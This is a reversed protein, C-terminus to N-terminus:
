HQCDCNCSPQENDECPSDEDDAAAYASVADRISSLIDKIGAVASVVDTVGSSVDLDPLSDISSLAHAIKDLMQANGASMKMIDDTSASLPNGHEDSLATSFLTCGTINSSLVKSNQMTCNDLMFDSLTGETQKSGAFTGYYVNEKNTFIVKDPCVCDDSDSNNRFRSLNEKVVPDYKAYTPM